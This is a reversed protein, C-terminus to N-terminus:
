KPNKNSDEVTAPVFDYWESRLFECSVFTDGVLGELGDVRDKFVVLIAPWDDWEESRIQAYFRALKADDTLYVKKSKFDHKYVGM